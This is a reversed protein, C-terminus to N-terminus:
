VESKGATSEGTTVMDGVAAMEREDNERRTQKGQLLFAFVSGVCVVTGQFILARRMNLPPSADPGARLAGQVLVMMVGFANGSCWMIASSAMANRTLECALEIAVPLLTLSSAGIVSLITYLAATNNPRVAWILSLWAGALIPTFVKCTRALYYTLVRDFLPATVAAAALGVLLLTSGMLGATVPSYGYPAASSATLFTVSTGVLIGFDLIMILFDIRQRFTMYTPADPKEKGLMARGLSMYTPNEQAGTFTPPTPPASQILLAIPAVATSIIALVLISHRPTGLFPSALQGVANGVPNSLAMIMTATTRGKLNFWKESYSPVLVQYIPAAIGVLMQGILILAYSSKPGLSSITGAYRIWASILMLAVGVLGVKRIGFKTFLFPLPFSVAIYVVGCSNGLWNVENLTYGFQDAAGNAIPGFWSLPMGVVLNLIVIAILGVWRKKYMRYPQPAVYTEIFNKDVSDEKDHIM